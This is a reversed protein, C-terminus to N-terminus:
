CRCGNRNHQSNRAARVSSHPPMVVSSVFTPASLFVEPGLCFQCNDEGAVPPVRGPLGRKVAEELRARGLEQPNDDAKLLVLFAGRIEALVPVWAHGTWLKLPGPTEDSDTDSASAGAQRGPKPPLAPLRGGGDM